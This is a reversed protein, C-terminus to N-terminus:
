TLPAMRLEWTHRYDLAAEKGPGDRAILVDEYWGFRHVSFPCVIEKMPGDYPPPYPHIRSFIGIFVMGDDGVAIAQPHFEMKKVRCHRPLEGRLDWVRVFRDKGYSVLFARRPSWESMEVSAFHAPMSEGARLPVGNVAVKDEETWSLQLDRVLDRM